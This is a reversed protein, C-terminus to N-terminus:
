ASDDQAARTTAEIEEKPILWSNVGISYGSRILETPIMAQRIVVSKAVSKKSILATSSISGARLFCSIIEVTTIVTPMASTLQNPRGYEKVINLKPAWFVTYLQCSKKHTATPRQAPSIM